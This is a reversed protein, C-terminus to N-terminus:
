RSWEWVKKVAMFVDFVDHFQKYEFEGTDKFCVALLTDNKDVVGMERIARAYASLQLQVEPYLGKGTKWDVVAIQGNIEFVGDCTGAYGHEKSVVEIEIHKAKPDHEKVFKQFAEYYKNEVLPKIFKGTKFYAEALDHVQSGRNFVKDQRENFLKFLEKKDKPKHEKEIEAGISLAWNFLAPKNLTKLITTVSPYLEGDIRYFGNSRNAYKM